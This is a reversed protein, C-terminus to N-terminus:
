NMGETAKAPRECIRNRKGMCHQDQDEIGIRGAKGVIGPLNKKADLKQEKM